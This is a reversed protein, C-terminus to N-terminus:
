ETEIRIAAAANSARENADAKGNGVALVHGV